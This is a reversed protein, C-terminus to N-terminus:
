EIQDNLLLDDTQCDDDQEQQSSKARDSSSLSVIEQAYRTFIPTKDPKAKHESSEGRVSSSLSVIEQANRTFIPTKDPKAKNEVQPKDEKGPKDHDHLHKSLLQLSSQDFVEL